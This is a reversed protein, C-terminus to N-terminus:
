QYGAGGVLDIQYDDVPVFLRRGDNMEIPLVQRQFRIQHGADLLRRMVPAPMAHPLNAPWDGELQRSRQAPLLFSETRDDYSVPIGVLEWDLSAAQLMKSGGATEAVYESPSTGAAAVQSPGSANAQSVVTVTPPSKGAREASPDSARDRVALDAGPGPAAIRLTDPLFVAHVVMGVAFAVLVGAVTVYWTPRRSLRTRNRRGAVPQEASAGWTTRCRGEDGGLHAEQSCLAKVEQQWCQAELFALACRKWGGPEADLQELFRRREPDSLEGDVLLDFRPDDWHLQPTGQETM